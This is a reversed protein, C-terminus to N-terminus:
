AAKDGLYRRAYREDLNALPLLVLLDACHFEPDWAPEGCVWAGSRLYGKLLPPLAPAIDTDGHLPFALRPPARYEPPSLHGDRSLQQFVANAQAGGDALSISACGILYECGNRRMYDAMGSWLMMIVAGSRYDPHICARGAEVLRARLHALRRLDFEGECYLEGLKQAGKPNLLRYTGVVELTAMDRVLLHDCCDDFRDRDLREENMLRALGGGEIFVKYRLRQVERVEGPTSALSLALRAKGPEAQRQTTVLQM